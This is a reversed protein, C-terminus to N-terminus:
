ECIAPVQFFSFLNVARSRCICSCLWKAELRGRAAHQTNKATQDRAIAQLHANQVELNIATAAIAPNLSCSTATTDLPDRAEETQDEDAGVANHPEEVIAHRM